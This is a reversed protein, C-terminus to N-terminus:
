YTEKKNIRKKENTVCYNSLSVKQVEQDLLQSITIGFTSCIFLLSDLSLNSRSTLFNNLLIRVKKIEDGLNQNNIKEKLFLINRRLIHKIKVGSQKQPIPILQVLNSCIFEGQNTQDKINFKLNEKNDTDIGLWGNCHESFGISINGGLHKNTKNCYKNGCKEVLLSIHIPCLDLCKIKWLLPEYLTTQKTQWEEFCFPCWRRNTYHLSNLSIFNKWNSMTLLSLDKRQCLDQLIKIITGKSSAEEGCSNIAGSNNYLVKGNRVSYHKPIHPIIEELVLTGTRVSHAEALRCIYSTLSEVYPTGIGIPELNYLKSPKTIQPISMNWSRYIGSTDSSLM